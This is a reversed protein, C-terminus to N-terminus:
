LHSFVSLLSCSCGLMVGTSSYGLATQSGLQNEKTAERYPIKKKKKIRIM